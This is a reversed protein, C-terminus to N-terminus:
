FIDMVHVNLAEAIMRKEAETPNIRGRIVGSLFSTVKGIKKSLEAQTTKNNEIEQKLKINYENPSPSDM